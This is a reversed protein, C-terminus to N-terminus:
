FNVSLSKSLILNDDKTMVCGQRESLAKSLVDVLKNSFYREVFSGDSLFNFRSSSFIQFSNNLQHLLFISLLGFIINGNNFYNNKFIIKLCIKKECIRWRREDGM